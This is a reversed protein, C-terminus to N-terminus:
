TRLLAFAAGRSFRLRHVGIRNESCKLLENWAQGNTRLNRAAIIWRVAELLIANAREALDV